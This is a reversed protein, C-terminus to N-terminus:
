HPRVGRFQGITREFAFGDGGLEQLRAVRTWSELDPRLRTAFTVEVSAAAADFEGGFVREVAARAGDIVAIELGYEVSGPMAGGPPGARARARVEFALVEASVLVSAVPGDVACEVLTAGNL